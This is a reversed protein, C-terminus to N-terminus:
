CGSFTVPRKAGRSRDRVDVHIFPRNPYCGLGGVSDLQMAHAILAAKPVGGSYFGAALCKM